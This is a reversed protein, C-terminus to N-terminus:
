SKHNESQKYKPIWAGNEEAPCFCEVGNKTKVYIRVFDNKRIRIRTKGEPFGVLPLIPVLGFPVKDGVLLIAM